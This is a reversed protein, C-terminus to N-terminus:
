LTLRNSTVELTTGLEGIRRLSIISGIGEESVDPSNLEEMM